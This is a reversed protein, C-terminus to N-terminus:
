QLKNETKLSTQILRSDGARRTKNLLEKGDRIPHRGNWDFSIEVGGEDGGMTNAITTTQIESGWRLAHHIFPHTPLVYQSFMNLPHM